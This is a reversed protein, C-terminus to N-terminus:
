KLYKLLKAQNGKQIELSFESKDVNYDDLLELLINKYRYFKPKDKAELGAAKLMDTLSDTPEAKIIAKVIKKLLGGKNEFADDKCCEAWNGYFGSAEMSDLVEDELSTHNGYKDLIYDAYSNNGAKDNKVELDLSTSSIKTGQEINGTIGMKTENNNMHSGMRKLYNMYYYQFHKLLSGGDKYISPDFKEVPSKLKVEGKRNVYGDALLMYAEAIFEEYAGNKIRATRAEKNPGVFKNFSFGIADACALFLFDIASQDGRKAAAYLSKDDKKSEWKEAAQKRKTDIFNSIEFDKRKESLLM